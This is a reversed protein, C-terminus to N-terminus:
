ERRVILFCSGSHRCRTTRNRAIMERRPFTGGDISSVERILEKVVDIDVHAAKAIEAVSRWADSSSV